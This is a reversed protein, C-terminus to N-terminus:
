AFQLDPPEDRQFVRLPVPTENARDNTIDKIISANVNSFMDSRLNGFRTPFTRVNSGLQQASNTNFRATDFANDVSHGNLKLDGGLYIVNGWGGLPGGSQLNIIGNFSWGSIIKNLVPNANGGWAHGRGFPLDWNGSFVFRHTRDDDAIRKELFPDSDNLRNTRSILKSWQYSGVAQFSRAFRKEVRFAIMHFYSSGENRQDISISSYQPYARMLEQRQITSGNRTTGPLLGAFPNTVNATNRDIVAQDRTPLTSLFQRPVFNYGGFDVPIHVAHNGIYGAEMVTNGTLERQISFSWRISYPNRQDRERFRIGQGLFTALGLQSGTPQKIGDRFPNSFTDYPTRLGDLTNVFNSTQSFGSQQNNVASAGSSAFFVGIGGRVVNKGGLM